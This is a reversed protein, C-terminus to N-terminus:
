SGTLAAFRAELYEQQETPSMKHIDRQAVPAPSSGGATVPVRADQQKGAAYQAVEDRKLAELESALTQALQALSVGESNAFTALLTQRLTPRTFVPFQTEVSTMEAQLQALQAQYREQEIVQRIEQHQQHQQHQIRALAYNESEMSYPDLGQTQLWEHFQGDPDNGAPAAQPPASIGAQLADLQAQMTDADIGLTRMREFVPSYEQLPGLQGLQQEAAQRARVVEEFREYPVPGRETEPAPTESRSAADGDPASMQQELFAEAGEGWVQSPPSGESGTEPAGIAQTEPDM